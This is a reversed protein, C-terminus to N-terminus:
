ARVAQELLPPDRPSSADIVNIHPVAREVRVVHPQHASAM